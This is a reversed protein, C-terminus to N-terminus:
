VRDLPPPSPSQRVKGCRRGYAPRGVAQVRSRAVAPLGVSPSSSRDPEPLGKTAVAEIDELRLRILRGIKVPTLRRQYLWKRVAAETCNLLKAAEEVTLLPNM